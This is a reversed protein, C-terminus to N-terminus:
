LYKKFAVVKSNCFERLGVKGHERGIGSNKYGGFPDQAIVYSADNVNINGTKLRSSIEVAINKNETYIYGGLGYDANNALMIAEDITDVFVNPAKKRSDPFPM